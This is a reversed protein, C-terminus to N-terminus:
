QWKDLILKIEEKTYFHNVFKSGSIKNVTSEEPKYLKKFEKQIKYSPKDEITNEIELNPIECGIFEELAQKGISNLSEMKLLLIEYGNTKSISFGKQKDFPLEYVDVGTYEKFEKDFWNLTYSHSEKSNYSHILELVDVDDLSRNGIFDIPNQFINSIDRSFPERVMSIIKIRHRPFAKITNRIKEALRKNSQYNYRNSDTENIYRDSLFHVHFVIAKPGHKKITKYITSSGVKGMTYVLIIDKIFLRRKVKKLVEILM